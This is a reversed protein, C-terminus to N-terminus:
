HNVLLGRRRSHPKGVGAERLAASSAAFILSGRLAGSTGQIPVTWIAAEVEHGEKNL